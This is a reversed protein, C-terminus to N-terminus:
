YDEGKSVVEKCTPRLIITHEYQAVYSGRVDLLPPYEEVVGSDVLSRLAVLYRQEGSRELYRRCWPLTKFNKDIHDRLMKARPM